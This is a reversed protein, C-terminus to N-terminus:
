KSYFKLFLNYKNCLSIIYDMNAPQGFLHVPIIAKTKSTIKEEIKNTDITYYDSDIDIFIPKAGAQTITESTSFGSMKNILSVSIRSLSPHFLIERTIIPGFPIINKASFLM